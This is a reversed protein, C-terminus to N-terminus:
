CHKYRSTNGEFRVRSQQAQVVSPMSTKVDSAVTQRVTADPRSRSTVCKVTGQRDVSSVSQEDAAATSRATDLDSDSVKVAADSTNGMASNANNQVKKRESDRVSSVPKRTFSSRSSSSHTDKRCSEQNETILRRSTLQQNASKQHGVDRLSALRSCDASKEKSAQNHFKKPLPQDSVATSSAHYNQDRHKARVSTSSIKTAATVSLHSHSDTNAVEAISCPNSLSIDMNDIVPVRVISCTDKEIQEHSTENRVSVSDDTNKRKRAVPTSSDVLTDKYSPLSEASPEVCHLQMDDIDRGSEELQPKNKALHQRDRRARASPGLILEHFLVCLCTVSNRYTCHMLDMNWFCCYDLTCRNNLLKISNNSEICMRVLNTFNCVLMIAILVTSFKVKLKTM